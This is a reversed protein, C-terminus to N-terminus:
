RRVQSALVRVDLKYFRAFTNLSSWGAALCYRSYVYRNVMSLHLLLGRQVAGLTCLANGFRPKYIGGHYRGCGLTVSKTEVRSQGRVVVMACSLQISQRFNASRDICIRLARVPLSCDTALASLSVMQTRSCDRGSLSVTTGPDSDFATATWLFFALLDEIRKASALALLVTTKLGEVRVIM